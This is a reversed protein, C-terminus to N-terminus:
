KSHQFRENSKYQISSEIDYIGDVKNIEVIADIVGISLQID